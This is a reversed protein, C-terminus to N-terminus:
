CVKRIVGTKIPKSEVAINNNLYDMVTDANILRKRGVQVSPIVGMQVMRRLGCMTIATDPDNEKIDNYVDKILRMKAM